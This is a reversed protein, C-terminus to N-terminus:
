TALTPRRRLDDDARVRQDLLADVQRSRATATTSSCCRKPTSCRCPARRLAARRVDQVHGRRRDRARERQRDVAVQGHGLDRLRRGVRLGITVRQTVASRRESAYLRSRACRSAPRCAYTTQGSISSDSVDCDRAASASASRSRRPRAARSGRRGAARGAAAPRAARASPAAELRALEVHEDRRRHDLDADVDRVRRDHDDLLGVAEPERLQVLQAAADAAAGLLRVAQEDRPWRSSSVSLACSRSCASTSEVSPKSSASFSRSSRPSPWSSPVRWAPTESRRKAWQRASRGSSSRAREGGLAAVVRGADVDM